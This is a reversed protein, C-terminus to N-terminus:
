VKGTQEPHIAHISFIERSYDIALGFHYKEWCQLVDACAEFIEQIPSMKDSYTKRRRQSADDFRLDRLLNIFLNRAM